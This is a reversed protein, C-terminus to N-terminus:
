KPQEDKQEKNQKDKEYLERALCWIKKILEGFTKEDLKGNFMNKNKYLYYVWVSETVDELTTYRKWAHELCAGLINLLIYFKFVKLLEQEDVDKEM